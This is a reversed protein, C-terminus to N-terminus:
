ADPAINLVRLSTLESDTGLDDDTINVSISETDISTNPTYDDDYTYFAEFTGAQPNLTAATLRGHLTSWIVEVSHSDLKGVDSYTGTLKVQTGEEITSGAPLIVWGGSADKRYLAPPSTLQPAVNNVFISTSLTNGTQLVGSTVPDYEFIQVSVGYPQNNSRNDLYRHPINLVTRNGIPVYIDEINPALTTGDGWNIRLFHRDILGPDNLSISLYGISDEDISDSTWSLATVSPAVDLVQVDLTAYNSILPEDDDSVNVSISYTTSPETPNNAYTHGISFTRGISQGVESPRDITQLPTGDGWDIVIRHSDQIGPDNWSGSLTFESGENVVLKSSLPDTPLNTSLVLGTPHVNSVTTILSGSTSVSAGFSDSVTIRLSYPDSSTNTPNDDAYVHTLDFSYVGGPLSQTSSTGDGWEVTVTHTEASSSDSFSGSLRLSGGENVRTAYTISSEDISPTVNNVTVDLTSVTQKGGNDAITIYVRYPLTGVTARDYRHLLMFTQQSSLALVEPASGDGYNVTATWRTSDPDTFSGALQLTDGASITVSSSPLIIEPASNSAVDGVVRVNGFESTSGIAVASILDGFEIPAPDALPIAFEFYAANEDAGLGLDNAGPFNGTRHDTDSASGETFSGLRKTGQGRGNTTPASAYFQLTRGARAYGQVVLSNVSGVTSLFAAIIGPANPLSDTDSSDNSTVGQNGIDIALFINGQYLNQDFLNGSATSATLGPLRLGSNLNNYILNGAAPSTGGITNNIVTDGDLLIGNATNSIVMTGTTDTGVANGLVSNGFSGDSLVVGDGHNGSITNRDNALLGGVINGSSASIRVGSRPNNSRGNGLALTGTIDTGIRNGYLTNSGGTEILIGGLFNGSIVNGVISTYAAGDLIRIGYQENGVAVSGTSDLGILNNRILNNITGSDKLVIGSQLNGSLINRVTGSTGGIINLNAGNSVLVGITNPIASQGLGDTGIWNGEVVNEKAL